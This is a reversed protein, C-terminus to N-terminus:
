GTRGHKKLALRNLDIQRGEKGETSVQLDKSPGAYFIVGPKPRPVSVWMDVKSTTKQTRVTELLHGLDGQRDLFDHLMEHYPDKKIMVFNDPSTVDPAGKGASGAIPSIHHVDYQNPVVGRKMGKLYEEAKQPSAGDAIFAKKFAEGHKTAWMRMTKNRYGDPISIRKNTMSDKPERGTERSIATIMVDKVDEDRLQHVESAKIGKEAFIESMSDFYPELNKHTKFASMLPQCTKHYAAKETYSLSVRRAASDSKQRYFHSFQKPDCSIVGNFAMRHAQREAFGPIKFNQLDFTMNSQVIDQSSITKKQAVKTSLMSERNSDMVKQNPNDSYAEREAAAKDVQGILANYKERGAEQGWEEKFRAKQLMRKEKLKKKSMGM